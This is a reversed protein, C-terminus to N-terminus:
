KQGTRKPRKTVAMNDQNGQSRGQKSSARTPRHGTGKAQAYNAGGRKAVAVDPEGAAATCAM